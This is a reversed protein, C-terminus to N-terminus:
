GYERKRRVMPAPPREDAYRWDVLLRVPRDRGRDFRCAGTKLEDRSRELCRRVQRRSGRRM